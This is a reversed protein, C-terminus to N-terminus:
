GVLPSISIQLSACSYKHVPIMTVSPMGSVTSGKRRFRSGWGIWHLSERYVTQTGTQKWLLMLACPESILHFSHLGFIVILFHSSAVCYLHWMGHAFQLIVFCIHLFIHFLHAFFLAAISLHLSLTQCGGRDASEGKDYSVYRILNFLSSSSSMANMTLCPYYQWSHFLWQYFRLYPAIKFCFDFQYYYIVNYRSNRLFM